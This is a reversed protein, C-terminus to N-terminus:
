RGHQVAPGFLGQGSSLAELAKVQRLELLAVVVGVIEVEGAPGHRGVGVLEALEGFQDFAELLLLRPDPQERGLGAPGHGQQLLVVADAAEDGVRRIVRRNIPQDLLVGGDGELGLAGSFELTQLQRGPLQGQDGVPLEEALVGQRGAAIHAAPALGSAARDIGVLHARAVEHHVAVVADAFEQLELLERNAAFGAVVENHLVGIAQQPDGGVLQAAEPAVPGGTVAGRVEVPHASGRPVFGLLPRALGDALDGEIQDLEVGFPVLSRAEGERHIAGPLVFELVGEGVLGRRILDLRNGIDFPVHLLGLRHVAQDATIHAEAFGFDGDARDELGDGGTLLHCHEGRCGNQGLLM